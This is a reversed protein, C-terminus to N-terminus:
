TYLLNIKIIIYNIFFDPLGRCELKEWFLIERQKLKRKKYSVKSPFTEKEWRLMQGITMVEALIFSIFNISLILRILLLLEM